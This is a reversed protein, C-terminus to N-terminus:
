NPAISQWYSGAWILGTLKVIPLPHPHGFLV